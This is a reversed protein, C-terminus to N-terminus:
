SCPVAEFILKVRLVDGPAVPEARLQISSSYPPVEPVMHWGPHQQQRRSLSMRNFPATGHSPSTREQCRSISLTTDKGGEM